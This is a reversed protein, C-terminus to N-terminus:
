LVQHIFMRVKSMVRKVDFDNLPQNASTTTITVIGNLVQSYTLIIPNSTSVELAGFEKVQCQYTGQKQYM